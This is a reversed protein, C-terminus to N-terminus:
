GRTGGSLEAGPPIGDQTVRGGRRLRGVEGSPCPLGQLRPPRTSTRRATTVTIFRDDPGDTRWVIKFTPKRFGPQKVRFVHRDSARTFYTDVTLGAASRTVTMSRLGGDHTEDRM